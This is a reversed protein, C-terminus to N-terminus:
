ATAGSGGKRSLFRPNSEGHRSGHSPYAFFRSEDSTNPDGSNYGAYRSDDADLSRNGSWFPFFSFFFLFVSNQPRYRDGTVLDPSNGSSHLSSVSQGAERTAENFRETRCMWEHPLFTCGRVFLNDMARVFVTKWLKVRQERSKGIVESRKLRCFRWRSERIHMRARAHVLEAGANECSLAGSEKGAVEDGFKASFLSFGSAAPSNLRGHRVV